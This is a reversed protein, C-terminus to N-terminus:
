PASIRWACQRSSRSLRELGCVGCRVSVCPLVLALSTGDGSTLTLGADCLLRLIMIAPNEKTAMRQSDGMVIWAESMFEKITYMSDLGSINSPQRKYVDSAASSYLPTSRPPRRIM